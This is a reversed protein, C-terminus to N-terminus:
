HQTGPKTEPGDNVRYDYRKLSINEQVQKDKSYFYFLSSLVEKSVIRNQKFMVKEVDVLIHINTCPCFHQVIYM